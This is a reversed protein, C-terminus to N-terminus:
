FKLGVTYTKKKKSIGDHVQFNYTLNM